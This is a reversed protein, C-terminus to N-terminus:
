GVSWTDSGTVLSQLDGEGKKGVAENIQGRVIDNFLPQEVDRFIGFPEPFDPYRMRSLLFALSPEPTKEDHCLLDDPSAM